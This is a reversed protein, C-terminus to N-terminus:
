SELVDLDSCKLRLLDIAVLAADSTYACVRSEERLRDLRARQVASIADSLDNRRAAVDASSEAETSSTAAADIKTALEKIESIADAADKFRKESAATTKLAELEAIRIRLAAVHKSSAERREADILDCQVRALCAAASAELEVFARVSSLANTTAALDTKKVSLEERLRQVARQAESEAEVALHERADQVDEVVPLNEIEIEANEAAVKADNIKARLRREESDLSEIEATMTEYASEKERLKARLDEVEATLERMPTEFTARRMKLSEMEEGARSVLEHAIKQKIRVNDKAQEAAERASTKMADRASLLAEVERRKADHFTSVEATNAEGAKVLSELARLSEEMTRTFEEEVALLKRELDNYANQMTSLQDELKAAVEYDDRAVSQEQRMKLDGVQALLTMCERAIVCRKKACAEMRAECSRHALEPAKKRAEAAKLMGLLENASSEELSMTTSKTARPPTAVAFEFEGMLASSTEDFVPLDDESTSRSIHAFTLEPSGISEPAAAMAVNMEDRAYGVRVPTVKPTRDGDDEVGMGFLTHPSIPQARPSGTANSGNTAIDLGSFLDFGSLGNASTPTSMALGEFMGRLGGSSSEKAASTTRPADDGVSAAATAARAHLGAMREEWIAREKMTMTTQGIAEDCAAIARRAANISACRVGVNSEAMSADDMARMADVFSTHLSESSMSRATVNPTYPSSSSLSHRDM